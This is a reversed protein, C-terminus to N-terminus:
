KCILLKGASSLAVYVGVGTEGDKLEQANKTESAAANCSGDLQTTSDYSLTASFTNSKKNGDKDDSTGKPDVTINVTM